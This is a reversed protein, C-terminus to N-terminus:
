ESVEVRSLADRMVRERRRPCLHRCVEVTREDEVWAACEGGLDDVEVITVGLAMLFQEVM